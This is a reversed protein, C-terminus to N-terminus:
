YVVDILVGDQCYMSLGVVRDVCYGILVIGILVCDKDIRALM